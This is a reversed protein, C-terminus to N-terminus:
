LKAEVKTLFDGQHSDGEHTVNRCTFTGNILKSKVSVQKGPRITPQLLSSFEVGDKTKAPSGILGTEDSLYVIGDTTFGGAQTIQLAEDQISWELNYRKCLMDLHDRILGSLSLGNAINENPIELQAGKPLGIADSLDKFPLRLKTDAPYGKDFTKSIYAIHGDAAEIKTILSTGEKVHEYKKVTGKFIVEVNKSSSFGTGLFGGQDLGLYGASLVLSCNKSEVLTRTQPSLNYISIQSDNPTARPTKKVTFNIRLNEIRTSGGSSGAIDLVVKRLYLEGM